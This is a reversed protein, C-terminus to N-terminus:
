TSKGGPACVAIERGGCVPLEAEAVQPSPFQVGGFCAHTYCERGATIPGM